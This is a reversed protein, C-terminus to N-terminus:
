APDYSSTCEATGAYCYLQKDKWIDNEDCAPHWRTFVQVPFGIGIDHATDEKYVQYWLGSWKEDALAIAADYMEAPPDWIIVNSLNHAYAVDICQKLFGLLELTYGVPSRVAVRNVFLAGLEKRPISWSLWAEGPEDQRQEAAVGVQALWMGPLEGRPCPKEEHGAKAHTFAYPENITLSRESSANSERIFHVQNAGNSKHMLDRLGLLSIRATGHTDMLMYSGHMQIRLQPISQRKWQPSCVLQEPMTTYIISILCHRDLLEGVKELLIKGLDKRLVGINALVAAKVQKNEGDQGSCQTAALVRIDCSCIPVGDDALSTLIVRFDDVDGSAIHIKYNDPDENHAKKEPVVVDAVGKELHHM